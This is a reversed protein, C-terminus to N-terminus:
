RQRGRSTLAASAKSTPPGISMAAGALALGAGLLGLAAAQRSGSTAALEVVARGFPRPESTPCLVLAPGASTAVFAFAAFWSRAVRGSLTRGEDDWWARRRSAGLMRAIDVRSSPGRRGFTRLSGRLYPYCAIALSLILLVGPARYPDVRDALDSWRGGPPGGRATALVRLVYVGALGGLALILPHVWAFLPFQAYPIAARRRESRGSAALALLLAAGSASAGLLVTDLVTQRLEPVEAFMSWRSAGTAPRLATATKLLAGIPLWAAVGWILLASAFALSLGRPTWRPPVRPRDPLGNWRGGCAALAARGALGVALAVLAFAALGSAGQSRDVAVILQYGVTRRLGLVLPAGPEVISAAFVLGAARFSPARLLPWVLRGAVTRRRAGALRADDEWAPDIQELVRACAIGVTPVGAILGTAVLAAWEWALSRDIAPGSALAKWGLALCVPPIAVPGWALVTLPPRGWFRRRATAHALVVGLALSGLSVAAAVALSNAVCTRLFPDFLTLASPFLTWRPGGTPGRDVFAAIALAAIPLSVILGVLARPLRTPWRVGSM